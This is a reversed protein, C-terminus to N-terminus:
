DLEEEKSIGSKQKHEWVNIWESQNYKNKCLISDSSGWGWIHDPYELGAKNCVDTHFERRGKYYAKDYVNIILLTLVLLITIGWLVKDDIKM